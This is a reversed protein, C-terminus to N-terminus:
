YFKKDKRIVKLFHFGYIAYGQNYYFKHSKANTVYTNLEMAECGKSQVYVDIWNFFYEGLKKGRFAEDIVVHDPAASKGIYHRTTYWLGAIGVLKHDSFLGVCEYHTLHAMELVRKELIDLPTKTNITSLLPLIILIDETKIIEINISM